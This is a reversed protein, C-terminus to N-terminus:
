NCSWIWNKKRLNLDYNETDCIVKSIARFLCYAINTLSLGLTKAILRYGTWTSLKEKSFVDSKYLPLWFVTHVNKM